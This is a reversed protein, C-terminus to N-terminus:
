QWLTYIYKYTEILLTFSIIGIVLWTIIATWNLKKM